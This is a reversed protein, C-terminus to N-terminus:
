HNIAYNYVLGKVEVQIDNGVSNDVQLDTCQTEPCMVHLHTGM